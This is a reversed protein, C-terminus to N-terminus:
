ETENLLQHIRQMTVHYKDAIAQLTAGQARMFRIDKIHYRLPVLLILEDYESKRITILEDTM